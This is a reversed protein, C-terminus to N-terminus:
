RWSVLPGPGQRDQMAAQTQEPWLPDSQLVQVDSIRQAVQCYDQTSGLILPLNNLAHTRQLSAADIEVDELIAVTNSSTAEGV